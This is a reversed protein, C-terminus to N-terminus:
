ATRSICYVGIVVLFIGLMRMPSVDEGLLVAAGIATTVYGLSGMPYALSLPLRSLVMLWVAFGVVFLTLGGILFPNVVVKMLIPLINSTEFGFYGIRQMGTKLLLQAATNLLIGLLLLLLSSPQM